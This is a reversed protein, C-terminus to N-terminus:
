LSNKINVDENDFKIFYAKLVTEISKQDTFKKRMRRRFKISHGGRESLHLMEHYLIYSIIRIPLFSLKSNLTIVGNSRCNGWMRRMKRYKILRVTVKLEDSYSLVLDNIINEFEEKERKIFDLRDANEMHDLFGDYKKRIRPFNEVLIKGPDTGYPLIMKPIRSKFEVRFYRVKRKVVEFTIGKYEIYDTKNDSKAFFM